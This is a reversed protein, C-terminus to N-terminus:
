GDNRSCSCFLCNLWAASRLRLDVAPGLLSVNEIQLPQRLIPAGSHSVSHYLQQWRRSVIAM